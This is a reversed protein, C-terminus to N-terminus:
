SSGTIGVEQYECGQITGGVSFIPTVLLIDHFHHHTIEWAINCFVSFNGERERERKSSETQSFGAAMDHPQVFLGTSLGM